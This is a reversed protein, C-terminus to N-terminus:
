PGYLRPAFTRLASELRQRAQAGAGVPVRYATASGAAPAYRRLERRHAAVFAERDAPELLVRVPAEGGRTPINLQDGTRVAALEHWGVRWSETGQLTIAIGESDLVLFRKISVHLTVFVFAGTAILFTGLVCIKITTEIEANSLLAACITVVGALVFLGILMWSKRRPGTMLDFTVPADPNAAPEGAYPTPQMMRRLM